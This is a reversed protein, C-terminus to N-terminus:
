LDILTCASLLPCIEVALIIKRPGTKGLSARLVSGLFRIRKEKCNNPVSAIFESEPQM